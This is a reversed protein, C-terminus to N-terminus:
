QLPMTFHLTVMAATTLLLWLPPIDRPYSSNM